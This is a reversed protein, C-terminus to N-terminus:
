NLHIKLKLLLQTIINSHKLIKYDQTKTNTTIPCEYAMNNSREIKEVETFSFRNNTLYKM